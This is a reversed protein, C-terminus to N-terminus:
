KWLVMSSLCLSVKFRVTLELTDRENYGLQELISNPEVAGVFIIGKHRCLNVSIIDTSIYYCPTIM